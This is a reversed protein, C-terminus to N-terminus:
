VACCAGTAVHYAVRSWYLMLAANGLMFAFLRARINNHTTHIWAHLIRAAVFTYGLIAYTADDLKLVLTLLAAAYFLVPMEFLNAFHRTTQQVYDPPTEGQQVKFYALTIAGSRLASIRAVFAVFMYLLTVFAM